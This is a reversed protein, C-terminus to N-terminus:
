VSRIRVIDNEKIKGFKLKPMTIFWLEESLDKIRMEINFDDKEYVKLVKVVLDFEAESDLSKLEGLQKSLQKYIWFQSVNGFFKETWNRLDNIKLKDVEPNFSYDIGSFKYPSYMKKDARDIKNRNSEDKMTIDFDAGESENQSEESSSMDKLIDENDIQGMKYKENVIVDSSQFMCWNSKQNM